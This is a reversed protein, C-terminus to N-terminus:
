RRAVVLDRLGEAGNRFVQEVMFGGGDLLATLEAVTFNGGGRSSLLMNLALLAPLLPGAGDDDFLTESVFLRGRPRLLTAARGLLARRRDDDFDGLVGSLLVADAPELAPLAGFLDGPYARLREAVGAARATETAYACAGPFDVLDIHLRPLARLLEVAVQGGGGGLDVLRELRTSDVQRAMLTGVGAGAANMAELFLAMEEPEAALSSYLDAARGGTWPLPQPEGSRVAAGLHFFLPYLQRRQQVLLRAFPSTSRLLSAASGVARWADDGARAVLGLPALATLLAELGRRSAGVRAALTAVGTPEEGLADFLQVEVAAHLVSSLVFGASLSILTAEDCVIRGRLDVPQTM